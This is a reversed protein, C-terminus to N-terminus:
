GGPTTSGTTTEATQTRVKEVASLQKSMTALQSLIMKNQAANETLLRNSRELGKRADAISRDLNEEIATLRANASSADENIRNITRRADRLLQDTEALQVRLSAATRVVGARVNENSAKRAYYLAFSAVVLVGISCLFAPVAVVWRAVRWVRDRPAAEAPAKEGHQEAHSV